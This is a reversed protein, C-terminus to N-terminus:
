ALSILFTNNKPKAFPPIFNFFLSTTHPMIKIQVNITAMGAYAMCTGNSIDM